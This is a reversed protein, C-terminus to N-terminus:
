LNVVSGKDVYTLPISKNVVAHPDLTLSRAAKVVELAWADHPEVVSSFPSDQEFSAMVILSLDRGIRLGRRDALDACGEAMAPSWCFVATPPDPLQLLRDIELRAAQRTQQHFQLSHRVRIVGVYRRYEYVLGQAALEAYFAERMADSVEPALTQLSLFAIRRHGHRHLIRVAQRTAGLSDYAVCSMAARAELPDVVIVPIGARRFAAATDPAISLSMSILVDPRHQAIAAVDLPEADTGPILLTGCNMRNAAMVLSTYRGRWHEDERLLNASTHGAFWGIVGLTLARESPHAADPLFVGKGPVTEVRKRLVLQKIAGSVTSPACGFRRALETRSPLRGGPPIAGQGIEQMLRDAVEAIGVSQVAVAQKVPM